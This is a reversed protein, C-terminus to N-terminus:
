CTILHEKMDLVGTIYKHHCLHSFVNDTTLFVFTDHVILVTADATAM